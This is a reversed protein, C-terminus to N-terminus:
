AFWLASLRKKAAAVDDSRAGAAEFLSLLRKRLEDRGEGKTKELCRLLVDFAAAPGTGAFRADALAVAAEVDNPAAVLRAELAGEDVGSAALRTKVEAVLPAVVAAPGALAVAGIADIHARADDLHGARAALAAKVAVLRVDNVNLGTKEANDIARALMRGAQADGDVSRAGLATVLANTVAAVPDPALKNFFRRVEHEPLAGTFTDVVAGDKVAFVAPIGRVGFEKAFRPNEDTNVKAVVVRGGSEAALKELVPSLTRCPGCWPAWFDVIVARKQSEDFVARQFTADTVDVVNQSSM